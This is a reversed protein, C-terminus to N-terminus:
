ERLTNSLDQAAQETRGVWDKPEEGASAHRPDTLTRLPALFRDICYEPVEEDPGPEVVGPAAVRAPDPEPVPSQASARSGLLSSGPSMVVLLIVAGIGLKRVSETAM